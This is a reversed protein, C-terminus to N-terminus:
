YEFDVLRKLITDMDQREGLKIFIPDNELLSAAPIDKYELARCTTVVVPNNKAVLSLLTEQRYRDRHSVFGPVMKSEDKEPYFFVPM